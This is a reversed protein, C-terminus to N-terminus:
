PRCREIEETIIRANEEVPSSGDNVINLWHVGQETYAEHLWRIREPLPDCRIAAHDKETLAQGVATKLIGQLETDDLVPRCLRKNWARLCELAEREGWLTHWQRARASGIAFAQEGDLFRKPVHSPKHRSAVRAARVAEPASVHVVMDPLPMRPVLCAAGEHAHKRLWNTMAQDVLLVRNRAFARRRADQRGVTGAWEWLRPGGSGRRNNSVLGHGMSWSRLYALPFLWDALSLLRRAGQPPISYGGEDVTRFLLTTKGTGAGGIFHVIM